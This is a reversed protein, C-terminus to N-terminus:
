HRGQKGPIQRHLLLSTMVVVIKKTTAITQLPLHLLLLHLQHNLHVKPKLVILLVLVTSTVCADKTIMVHMFTMHQKIALLNALQRETGSSSGTGQYMVLVEMLYVAQNIRVALVM